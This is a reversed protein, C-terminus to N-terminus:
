PTIVWCTEGNLVAECRQRMPSVPSVPSLPIAAALRRRGDRRMATKPPKKPPKIPPKEFKGAGSKPAEFEFMRPTQTTKQQGNPPLNM